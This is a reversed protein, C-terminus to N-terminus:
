ANTHQPQAYPVGRQPTQIDRPPEALKELEYLAEFWGHWAGESRIITTADSLGTNRKPNAHERLYMICAKFRPDSFLAGFDKINHLDSKTM